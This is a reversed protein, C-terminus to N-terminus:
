AYPSDGLIEPWAAKLANVDSAAAIAPDKTVDRLAQKEVAIESQKVADAQEVARMFQVDLAALKPTRAERMKDKHIERAKDLNITIM